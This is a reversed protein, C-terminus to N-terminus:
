SNFYVTFDARLFNGAGDRVGERSGRVRLRYYHGAELRYLHIDIADDVPAAPASKVPIIKWTRPTIGSGSEGFYTESEFSVACAAAVPDIGAVPASGDERRFVVRFVIVREGLGGITKETAYADDLRICADELLARPAGGDAPIQFVPSGNLALPISRPGDILFRYTHDTGLPNGAPDSAGSRVVLTYWTMPEYFEGHARGLTVGRGDTSWTAVTGMSPSISIADATGDRDMPESFFIELDADKEMLGMVSNDPSLRARTGERVAYIGPGPDSVCELCPPEIDSGAVFGSTWEDILPNGKLDCVERSVRLTYRTGPEFGYYPRLTLVTGDPSYERLLATGPSLTVGAAVSEDRVPESFSIVIADPTGQHGDAPSVSVVRPSVFDNGAFFESVVACELDNGHADEAGSSVTIRYQGHTLTTRPELHLVRGEWRPACEVTRDGSSVRVANAASARDMEESFSVVIRTGAPVDRAGNAPFIDVVRPQGMDPLRDCGACVLVLTILLGAARVCRGCDNMKM